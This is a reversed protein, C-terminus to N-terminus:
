TIITRSVENFFSELIGTFDIAELKNEDLEEISEIKEKSNFLVIDWSMKEKIIYLPKALLRTGFPM